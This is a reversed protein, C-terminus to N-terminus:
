IHNYKCIVRGIPKARCTIIIEIFNVMVPYRMAGNPENLVRHIEQKLELVNRVKNQYSCLKKTRPSTPLIRHEINNKM